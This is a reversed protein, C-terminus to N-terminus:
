LNAFASEYKFKAIAPAIEAEDYRFDPWDALEWHYAM